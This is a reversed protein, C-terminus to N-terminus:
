ANVYSTGKQNFWISGPSPRGWAMTLPAENLDFNRSENLIDPDFIVNSDLEQKLDESTCKTCTSIVQHIFSKSMGFEKEGVGYNSEILEITQAFSNHQVKNNTIDSEAFRGSGLHAEMVVSKYEEKPLIIKQSGCLCLVETSGIKRKTLLKSWRLLQPTLVYSKDYPLSSTALLTMLELDKINHEPDDLFKLLLKINGRSLKPCEVSRLNTSKGFIPETLNKKLTLDFVDIQKPNQNSKNQIDSPLVKAVNSAVPTFTVATNFKGSSEESSVSVPVVIDDEASETEVCTSLNSLLLNTNLTCDASPKSASMGSHPKNYCYEHDGLKQFNVQKVHSDLFNNVHDKKASSVLPGDKKYVNIQVEFDADTMQINSFTEQNDLIVNTKDIDSSILSERKSASELSVTQGKM